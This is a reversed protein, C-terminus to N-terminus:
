NWRNLLDKLKDKAEDKLRNGQEDIARQQLEGTVASLDLKFKPDSRTGGVTLPLELREPRQSGLLQGLEALVGGAFLLDTQDKTLRIRGSYDLDGTFAYSGDVTLDGLDGLRTTLENVAVRGDAVSIHTALDRLAQEHGLERGTQAALKGLATHASGKTVVRGQKIGADSNLSLSNRITEGTRGSAAFSGTMDCGGYVVGALGAFRTLFNDVEIERAQYTGSYGPANLDNLDVAVQGDVRGHYVAGVVDNCRLVRDRLTVQGTVATFPVQMYILSDASFTGDCNLDPFQRAAGAGSGAAQPEGGTEAGTPSAAPLLRDVDLRPSRLDFSLHPTKVETGTQMEPPLFYPFPDRLVGTLDFTGSAFRARCQDVTIEDPRFRLVADLDQLEDVLGSETYSAGRVTVTGDYTAPASKDAVVTFNLDLDGRGALRGSQEPPLFPQALTLDADRVKVVGGTRVSATATGTMDLNLTVDVRGSDPGGQVKAAVEPPAMEALKVLSLDKGQFVIEGTLAGGGTVVHGTCTLPLQSVEGQIRDLDLRSQSADWTLEFDLDANLVPAIEPRTVTIAPSTLHGTARYRGPAPDTLSLGAVLGALRWEQGPSDATAAANYSIQGDQVTLSAVSLPPAATASSDAAAVSGEAAAAEAGFTFNNSGDAQRALNLVPGALVLRRVRFEGRLLPRLALKLDLAETALLHPGAFGAPNHIAFEQLRVGLGGRLSVDVEGVSVQRGLKERAQALALDRIKEAPLFITVGAMALLVMVLLAGLIRVSKRRAWAM